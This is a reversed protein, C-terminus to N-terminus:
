APEIGLELAREPMEASVMTASVAEFVTSWAKITLSEKELRLRSMLIDIMAQKFVLYDSRQVGYSVHRLGLNLLRPEVQDWRHLRRVIFGIMSILRHKQDRLDEPFMFRLKPDLEFLRDFLAMTAGEADQALLTFSERLLCLEEQSLHLRGKM